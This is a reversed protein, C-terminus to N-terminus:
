VLQAGELKLLKIKTETGGGGSYGGISGDSAIVRHCPIVIPIPNKGLAQGVARVAKLNGIQRAIDGYTTVMGRPIYSTVTLVQQQFETLTSLDVQIDFNARKGNLYDRVQNRAWATLAPSLIPELQYKERIKEIFVEESIGFEISLLKHERVALFIVGILDHDLKNYYISKSQATTLTQKLQELAQTTAAPSPGRAFLIDLANSVNEPISGQDDVKLRFSSNRGNGFPTM